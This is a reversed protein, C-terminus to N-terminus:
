KPNFFVVKDFYEYLREDPIIVLVHQKTNDRYRNYKKFWKAMNGHREIEYYSFPTTIDANESNKKSQVINITGKIIDNFQVVRKNHFTKPLTTRHTGYFVNRCVDCCFRRSVWTNQHPYDKKFFMYGCGKCIRRENM